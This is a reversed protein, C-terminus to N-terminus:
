LSPFFFFAMVLLPLGTYGPFFKTENNSSRRIQNITATYNLRPSPTYYKIKDFWLLFFVDIIIDTENGSARKCSFSWLLEVPQNESVM